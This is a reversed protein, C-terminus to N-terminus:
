LDLTGTVFGSVTNNPVSFYNSFRAMSLHFSAMILVANVVLMHKYMLTWMLLPSRRQLIPNYLDFKAKTANAIIYEVVSAPAALAPCLARPVLPYLERSASLHASAAQVMDRVLAAVADPNKRNYVKDLTLDHMALLDAPLLIVGRAM